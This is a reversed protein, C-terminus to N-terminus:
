RSVEADLQARLAKRARHLWVWVTAVKADLLEAVEEGTKGELEFLVLVERDRTSLRSMARYLQRVQEAQELQTQAPEVEAADLRLMPAFLRRVRLRRRRQRVVNACIRYLWTSPQADGRFAPLKRHAILFVEQVVDEIELEAGGLHHAWRAVDQLHARYLEAFSPAGQVTVLVPRPLAREVEEAQHRQRRPGKM